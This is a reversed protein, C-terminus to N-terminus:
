EYQEGVEDFVQPIGSHIGINMAQFIAGTQINRFKLFGIDELVDGPSAGEIFYSIGKIRIVSYPDVTFEKREMIKEGQQNSPNAQRVSPLPLNPM